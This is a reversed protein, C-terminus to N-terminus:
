ECRTFGDPLDICRNTCREKVDLICNCGKQVSCAAAVYYATNNFCISDYTHEPCQIMGGSNCSGGSDYSNKVCEDYCTIAKGPVCGCAGADHCEALGEYLQNGVCFQWPPDPPLGRPCTVGGTGGGGSGGTAKGGVGGGGAVGGTGTSGGAIFGGSGRLTNAGGTSVAGGTASGGSGPAGGTRTAGGTAAGGADRGGTGSTAAGGTGIGEMGGADATGTTGGLAVGDSGGRATAGGSGLRGGTGVTGGSSIPVDVSPAADKRSGTASGCGLGM